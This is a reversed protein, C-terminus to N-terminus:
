RSYHVVSRHCRLDNRFNLIASEVSAENVSTMIVTKVDVITNLISGSSWSWSSTYRVARNKVLLSVGVTELWVEFRSITCNNTFYFLFKWKIKWWFWGTYFLDIYISFNWFDKFDYHVILIIYKMLTSQQAIKRRNNFM